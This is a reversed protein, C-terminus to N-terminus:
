VEYVSPSSEIKTKGIVAGSLIIVVDGSLVDLNDPVTAKFARGLFDTILASGSSLESITGIRKTPEVRLLDKLNALSNM